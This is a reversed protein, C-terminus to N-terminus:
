KGAVAYLKSRTTLYLVGSVVVPTSHMTDEMDVERMVKCRKGHEFIVVRGDEVAIYVKGDVWYPSGWVGAKFDYEWYRQGTRADLCHMYGNEESIYVLGDHVAATSMTRGFIVRKGQKPEPVVLGGYAWVLASGKNAPSKADLNNQPSVDGTKSADVCLFHSFRTGSPHEPYLGLGVFVKYDHVIPTSVMYNSIRRDDEKAGPAKPNCNFKWILQGTPPEFSYLWCDGGPFIVQGKGNVQAYVPNSWQGEIIRDGPLNSQWALKGDKKHLAVFSPAKPSAIKGEENVGNSTVVFVLEGIVLPSCNGLHYPVVKLEKMMDYRWAAKGDKVDACVVECAPTVYYIREGAVAPTSCLGQPLADHFTEDPPIDHTVQWLFKGDAENFCMLVAKQKKVAPDRPKSNNTGVFIRGAAIVPGGYAKSGLDVAWKINKTKGEAISWDTPVNKDVRNVMNRSPTGGFMPWSGGTADAVLTPQTATALTTSIKAFPTQQGCGAVLGGVAILFAGVLLRLRPTQM